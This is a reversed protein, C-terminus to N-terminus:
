AMAPTTAPILKALKRLNQATAALLFEDRAGCPGRLRLRDLKLIRKLHAFLMEVKKRERRSTVYADTKAIDRAFDRAGEHISRTVKRAPTNPCCRPRLACADCDAKAARYRHTDDPPPDTRPTAFARRYRQLVKGGPCRYLDAAHDYAFDSRSFTGDDREAKEIVPIHPEVGQDHVLWNLMEASGYATDAALRQPWLDHRERVREIMTRAATVEAQRVATSAEVDVIVAHDLDILYNTAYAFFALGKNAGTWRSAPDAPSIFKPTVPTAAGFAADDLVALYEDIARSAAEPPLGDSGLVCRQRNADAAILSADVAFGEGGVLGEAMCRRVVTEFLERLLDCDRFRGHRNKSFTSHDPVDGDLGLRCFWRYALNLHVEECLRRESRVGFCYGVLLMRILLEPDISPRGIASYFPAVHARVGELDVFRDIARLLHDQPVHRELSFEYFLAAQDVRREGMM